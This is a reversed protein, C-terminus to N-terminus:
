INHSFKIKVLYDVSPPAVTNFPVLCIDVAHQRHPHRIHVEARSRGYDLRQLATGSMPHETILMHGLRIIRGYNVPEGAAM